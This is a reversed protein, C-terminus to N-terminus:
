TRAHAVSCGASRIFSANMRIYLKEYAIEYELARLLTLPAHMRRNAWARRTYRNALARAATPGTGLKGSM